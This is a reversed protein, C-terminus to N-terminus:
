TEHSVKTDLERKIERFIQDRQRLQGQLQRIMQENLALRQKLQIITNELKQFETPDISHFKQGAIEIEQLMGKKQIAPMSQPISKINDIDATDYMGALDDDEM